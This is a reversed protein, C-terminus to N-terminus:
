LLAVLDGAADSAVARELRQTGQEEWLRPGWQTLKERAIKGPPDARNGAAGRPVLRTASLETGDRLVARVRAPLMMEFNELSVPDWFRDPLDGDGPGRRLHDILEWADRAGLSVRPHDARARAVARGLRTAGVERYIRRPPLLRAFSRAGAATLEPDHRLEVRRALDALEDRRSALAEETLDEPDLRGTALVAAVTWPISFTLAVPAPGGELYRRSMRDMGCTLAGAEVVIREVDAAKPPGLSLLADVTADVYACGPYPKVSLTRLAWSSGLSDLLGRIPAHSFAHLFGRPHDLADPPGTVGGRALRAARMGIVAPEAATLLKTDAGMFGPATPRPPQYLAIALAHALRDEDLGLLLGGALAAGAAHVFSWMQGNLPGILCAGGLRAGIEDAVVQALLVRDGEAETESALMLPVLVASHGPHGFCLYDDFDLAISLAAAGYVADEASVKRRSTILPAPGQTATAELAAIVRLAGADARSAAIAGLVSRRQARALELVEDPVSTLDLGAAWRAMDKVTSAAM